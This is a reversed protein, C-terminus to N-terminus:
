RRKATFTGLNDGGHMNFTFYDGEAERGTFKGGLFLYADCVTAPYLQITLAAPGDKQYTPFYGKEEFLRALSPFSSEVLRAKKWNGAMCTSTSEDTLELTLTGLPEGKLGVVNVAWVSDSAAHAALSTFCLLAAILTLFRLM